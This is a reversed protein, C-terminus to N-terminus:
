YEPEQLELRNIAKAATDWDFGRRALAQGIKVRLEKPDRRNYRSRIKEALKVAQEIEDEDSIGGVADRIIEKDIGKRGLEHALWRKGVPRGQRRSRILREAFDRDDALGYELLKGVVQDIIDRSYGKRSLYATLEHCSRARYGLYRLAGNYADIFDAQRAWERLDELSVYSGEEIKRSFIVEEPVVLVHGGELQIRLRGKRRKETEIGIIQLM